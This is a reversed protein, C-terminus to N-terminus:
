ICPECRESTPLPLSAPLAPPNTHAPSDPTVTAKLDDSSASPLAKATEVPKALGGSAVDDHQLIEANSHNPLTADVDTQSTPGTKADSPTESQPATM